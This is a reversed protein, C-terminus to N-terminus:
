RRRGAPPVRRKYVASRPFSPFEARHPHLAHPNPATHIPRHPSLRGFFVPHDLPRPNPRDPRELFFRQTQRFPFAEEGQLLDRLRFPFTVIAQSDSSGDLLATEAITGLRGITRRWLLRAAGRRYFLLGTANDYKGTSAAGLDGQSGTVQSSLFPV